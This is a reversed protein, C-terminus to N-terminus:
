TYPTACYAYGHERQNSRNANHTTQLPSIASAYIEPLRSQVAPGNLTPPAIEVSPMYEFNQVELSVHQLIASINGSATHHTPLQLPIGDVLEM